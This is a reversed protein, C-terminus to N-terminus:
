PCSRRAKKQLAVAQDCLKASTKRLAAHREEVSMARGAVEEVVYDIMCKRPENQPLDGADRSGMRDALSRTQTRYAAQPPRGM